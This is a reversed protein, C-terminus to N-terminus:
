GVVMWGMEATIQGTLGMLGAVVLDLQGILFFIPRVSKNKTKKSKRAELLM